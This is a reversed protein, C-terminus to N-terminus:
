IGDPLNRNDKILMWSEHVLEPQAGLYVKYWCRCWCDVRVKDVKMLSAGLKRFVLPTLRAVQMLFNTTLEYWQPSFYLHAVVDVYNGNSNCVSDKAILSFQANYQISWFHCFTLECTGLFIWCHLFSVKKKSLGIRM